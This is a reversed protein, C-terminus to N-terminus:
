SHMLTELLDALSREITVVPQWGTASQIRFPSGFQEVIDNSTIQPHTEEVSIEVGTQAVLIDILSGISVARGTCVNYVDGVIGREALSWYARVADRIDTYDRRTARHRLQLTTRKGHVAEAVQSALLSTVMGLPEGPGILNFSRARIVQLGYEQLFCLAVLEQNAKSVGYLTTPQFPMDETIPLRTVSVHGYIASSSVLIVRAIPTYRRVAELVHYTTLANTTLWQSPNTGPSNAPTQAALHFVIDPLFAQIAYEVFQQDLLDGQFWLVDDPLAHDRSVGAITAAQTRAYEILHRGAFGNAGTIFIRM